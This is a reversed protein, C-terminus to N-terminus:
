EDHDALKKQAGGVAAGGLFGSFMLGGVVAGVVALVVAWGISGVAIWGILSGAAAGILASVLIIIYTM